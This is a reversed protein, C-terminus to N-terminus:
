VRNTWGRWRACSYVVGAGGNGRKDGNACTFLKARSDRNFAHSLRRRWSLLAGGRNSAAEGAKDAGGTLPVELGIHPTLATAVVILPNAHVAGTGIGAARMAVLESDNTGGVALRSPLM